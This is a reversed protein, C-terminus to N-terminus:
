LQPNGVFSRVFSNAFTLPPPPAEGVTMRLLPPSVETFRGLDLSEDLRFVQVAYGSWWWAGDPATFGIDCWVDPMNGTVAMSQQVVNTNGIAAAYDPYAADWGDEDIVRLVAPASGYAFQYQVLLIHNNTTDPTWIGGSVPQATVFFWRKTYDAGSFVYSHQDLDLDVPLCDIVSWAALAPDTTTTWGSTMYGTLFAPHFDFTGGDLDVNTCDFQMLAPDTVGVGTCASFLKSILSLQNTAKLGLALVQDYFNVPFALTYASTDSNPGTGGAWPTIDDISGGTVSGYAAMAPPTFKLLKYDRTGPSQMAFMYMAGDAMTVSRVVRTASAIPPPSVYAAYSLLYDATTEATQITRPTVVIDSTAGIRTEVFVWDDNMGFMTMHGDAVPAPGLPSIIQAFSDDRRFLYLSCPVDNGIAHMWLDGTRPDVLCPGQREESEADTDTYRRWTGDGGGIGAPVLNASNWCSHFTVAQTAVTLEGISLNFGSSIRYDDGAAIAATGNWLTFGSTNPGTGDDCKTVPYLIKGRVRDYNLSAYQPSTFCYVPQTGANLEATTAADYGNVAEMVYSLTM